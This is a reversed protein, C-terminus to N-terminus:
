EWASRLRMQSPRSVRNEGKLSNQYEDAIAIQLGFAPGAAEANVGITRLLARTAFAYLLQAVGADVEMTNTGQSNVDTGLASLFDTGILQLNLRQTPIEELYIRQVSGDRRTDYLGLESDYVSPVDGFVLWAHNWYITMVAGSSVLLQVSLTTSNDGAPTGSAILLEWGRGSHQTSVAPAGDDDLLHLSVRSAVRSYVWMAAAMYRGASRALTIGNVMDSFTQTYTTETTAAVTIQTCSEDYKPVLRDAQLKTIISVAAGAGSLAWGSTSRGEPSQLFNWDLIAGLPVEQRVEVPGRIITPPVTVYRSKGDPTFTEDFIQQSVGPFGDIRATDLAAFKVRPEWKHLEYAAGSPILATFTSNVTVTAGTNATIQRVENISSDGPETIRIWQGILSNVRFNSMRTDELTLKNSNGASTTASVFLDELVESFGLLLANGTTAYDTM